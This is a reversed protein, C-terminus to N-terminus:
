RKKSKVSHNSLNIFLAGSKVYIPKIEHGATLDRVKVRYSYVQFQGDGVDTM